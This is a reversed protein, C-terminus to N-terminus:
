QNKKEKKTDPNSSLVKCLNANDKCTLGVSVIPNLKVVIHDIKFMSNM